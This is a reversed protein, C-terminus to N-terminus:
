EAVAAPCRGVRIGPPAVDPLAAGAAGDRSASPRAVQAALVHTRQARLREARRRAAERQAMPTIPTAVAPDARAEDLVSKTLRTRRAGLDRHAGDVSAPAAAADTRHASSFTGAVDAGSRYHGQRCLTNLEAAREMIGDYPRWDFTSGAPHAPSCNMHM